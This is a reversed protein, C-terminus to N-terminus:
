PVSNYATFYHLAGAPRNAAGYLVDTRTIERGRVETLGVLTTRHFRKRPTLKELLLDIRLQVEAAAIDSANGSAADYDELM